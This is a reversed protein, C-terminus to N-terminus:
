KKPFIFTLLVRIHIYVFLFSAKLISDAKFVHFIELPNNGLPSYLKKFRQILTGRNWKPETPNRECTGVIPTVYSKIGARRCRWSYDWDGFSHRYYPDLYGIKDSVEKPIFVFNGNFTDCTKIETTTSVQIVDGILGGYTLVGPTFASEITAVINSGPYM